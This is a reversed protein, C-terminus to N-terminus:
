EVIESIFVELVDCGSAQERRPRKEVTLKTIQSDDRYAIGNLADMVAKAYNDIDPKSTDPEVVVFTKRRKSKPLDREITVRMSLPVGDAFKYAGCQKKYADAVAKKYAVAEKKDYPKGKRTFRPRSQARVKGVYVFSETHM